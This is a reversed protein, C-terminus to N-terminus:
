PALAPEQGARTSLARLADLSLRDSVFRVSGDAFALNAGGPHNSGWACVRLDFYHQFASPNDARPHAGARRSFDFPLAYNIPAHGSMTVHGIAKRAGSPAWWGWSSLRDVWGAAGFSEFNPDYHSREGMLITHSAGDTIEALGVPRQFPQPESGEGTTHFVGDATAFDMFYSRAGGNGGYSAIGYVWGQPTSVPNEGITDSPCVLLPPVRATRSAAGGQTNRLPDTRDWEAHRATLECYPLLFVFLSIGRYPPTTPFFWQEVGPPFAQQADHHGHAALAWQHLQHQCQTRRSAERASQIAPVLFAVLAALIALVVLLEVLTFARNAARRHGANM